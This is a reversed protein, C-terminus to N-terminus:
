AWTGHQDGARQSARIREIVAVADPLIADVLALIREIQTPSDVFVVTLPTEDARRWFTPEHRHRRGFGEYAALVTGGAAGGEAAAYMLQDVKSRRDAAHPEAVYLTLQLAHREVPRQSSREVPM